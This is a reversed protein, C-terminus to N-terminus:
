NKLSEGNSVGNQETSPEADGPVEVELDKVVLGEFLNYLDYTNHFDNNVLLCTNHCPM